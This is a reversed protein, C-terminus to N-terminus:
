TCALRQYLADFVKVARCNYAFRLKWRRGSEVFRAALYMLEQMVTRIRCRKAEHRVPADKRTLGEQGLFRLINYALAACSLVLQNTAFKDSPLREVDM